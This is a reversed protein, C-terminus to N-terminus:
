AASRTLRGLMETMYALHAHDLPLQLYAGGDKTEIFRTKLLRDFREVQFEVLTGPQVALSGAFLLYGPSLRAIRGAIRQGNVQASAALDVSRAEFEENQSLEGLAGLFDKVEVGLSDAQRSLDEAIIKVSNASETNRDVAARVHEMSRSVSGTTESVREFSRAIEQTAASQESVASAISVAIANVEKVTDTIGQIAQATRSAVSQIASVQGGIVETAKGTQQALAKVESAVIAFGKGAAGARAAEITANLALLNTQSAIKNILEVVAGIQQAAGSLEAVQTVVEDSQRMAATSIRSSEGAQRGIESISASLEQSAAAVAEVTSSTLGIDALVQKSRNGTDVASDQLSTSTDAIGVSAKSVAAFVGGVSRGFFGVLQDVEEQRRARAARDRLQRSELERKELANRKFVNVASAMVGIEDRRALAPIETDLEGSALSRMTGTMARIPRIVGGITIWLLLATVMTLALGSGSILWAVTSRFTSDEDTKAASLATDYSERIKDGLEDAKGRAAAGPGTALALADADKQEAALAFTRDAIGAYAEVSAKIEEVVARQEDSLDLSQLDVLTDRVDKIEGGWDDAHQKVADAKDSLIAAKEKDAASYLGEQIVLVDVLGAADRDIALKGANRERALEFVSFAVIAIATLIMLAVPGLIKPLLGRRRSFQTSTRGEATM